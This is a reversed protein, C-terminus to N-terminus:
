SVRDEIFAGDLRQALPFLRDGVIQESVTVVPAPVLLKVIVMSPTTEPGSMTTAARLDQNPPM